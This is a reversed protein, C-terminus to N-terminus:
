TPARAATARPPAGAREMHLPEVLSAQPKVREWPGGTGSRPPGGSGGLQLLDSASVTSRRLSVHDARSVANEVRVTFFKCCVFKQAFTWSNGLLLFVSFDLSVCFSTQTHAHPVAIRLVDRFFAVRRYIASYICHSEAESSHATPFVFECPEM